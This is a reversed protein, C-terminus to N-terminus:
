QSRGLYKQHQRQATNDGPFCVGTKTGFHRNGTTNILRTFGTLSSSTCPPDSNAEQCQKWEIREIREIEEILPHIGPPYRHGYFCLVSPWTEPFPNAM